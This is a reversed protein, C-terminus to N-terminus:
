TLNDIRANPVYSKVDALGKHCGAETNYGEGSDAIIKHNPAKLMWRYEGSNDKYVQFYASM